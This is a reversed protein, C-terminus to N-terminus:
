KLNTFISFFRQIVFLLAGLVISQYVYLLIFSSCVHKMKYLIIMVM